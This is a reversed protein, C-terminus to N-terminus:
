STNKIYKKRKRSQTFAAMNEMEGGEREARSQERDQRTLRRSQLDLIQDASKQIYHIFNERLLQDFCLGRARIPGM